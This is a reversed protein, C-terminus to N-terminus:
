VPFRRALAELMRDLQRIDNELQRITRRLQNPDPQGATTGATQRRVLAAIRAGTTRREEPRMTRLSQAQLEDAVAASDQSLM